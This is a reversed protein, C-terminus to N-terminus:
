DETIISPNIAEQLGTAFYGILFSIYFISMMAFGIPVAWWPLDVRKRNILVGFLRKYGKVLFQKLSYGRRNAAKEDEQSEARVQYIKQLRDDKGQYLARSLFKKYFPAPHVTIAATNRHVPIGNSNLFEVHMHSSIRAKGVNPFPYQSFVSKRFAINDGFFYDTESFAAPETPLDYLTTISYIKSYLNIPDIHTYGSVIQVQDHKFHKLMQVLWHAQPIVDSDLFIILDANTYTAGYNKLQYYKYGPTGIIRVNINNIESSLEGEVINEIESADIEEEDYLMLLEIPFKVQSLFEAYKEASTSPHINRLQDAQIGIQHLMEISRSLEGLLVNEWDVIIAVSFKQKDKLTNM